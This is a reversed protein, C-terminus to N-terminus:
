YKPQLKEMVILLFARSPPSRKRRFLGSFSASYHKRTGRLPSRLALWLAFSVRKAGYRRLFAAKASKIQWFYHTRFKEAIKEPFHKSRLPVQRVKANAIPVCSLKRPECSCSGIAEIKSISVYVFVLFYLFLLANIEIYISPYHFSRCLLLMAITM